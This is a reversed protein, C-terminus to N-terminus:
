RVLILQVIDLFFCLELWLSHGLQLLTLIASCSIGSGSFPLSLINTVKVSSKIIKERVLSHFEVFFDKTMKNAPPDNLILHGIQGREEFLIINDM